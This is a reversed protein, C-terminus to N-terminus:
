YYPRRPNNLPNPRFRYALMMRKRYAEYEDDDRSVDDPRDLGLGQNEPRSSAKNVPDVIGQGESGLGQGETWGLKQLMQFGINNERLKYEKYDSLDPERGEKLANYKELFKELEDPPLFDGIHHKGQARRTLEEAWLQTAEMEASRLKHEWTGGGETEEDSDYEYKFKGARQLREIEQRKKVMDQYLLNIKYHDEAKKWDEESLDCTGFAQIAYQILQPDTRTVKSLLIQAGTNSLVRSEPQDKMNSADGTFSASGSSDEPDWRSRRKKRRQVRNEGTENSREDRQCDDISRKGMNENHHSKMEEEEPNYRERIFGANKDKEGEHKDSRIKDVLCRYQIYAVSDMQYLFWMAPDDRNKQRAMEEIEDGGEAVMRALQAAAPSVEPSVGMHHQVPQRSAMTAAGALHQPPPPPPIPPMPPAVVGSGVAQAVVGSHFNQSPQSSGNMGCQPLGHITQGMVPVGVIQPGSIQTPGMLQQSVVPPHTLTGPMINPPMAQQLHPPRNQQMQQQMPASGAPPYPFAARQPPPPPPPVLHVASAGVQNPPPGIVGPRPGMHPPPISMNSPINPPPPPHSPPPLAMASPPPLPNANVMPPPHHSHMNMPPPGRIMAPPPLGQCGGMLFQEQVTVPQTQIPGLAQPLSRPPLVQAHVVPLTQVQPVPAISMSGVSHVSTPMQPPMVSDSIDDHTLQSPSYPSPPRKQEVINVVSTDQQVHFSQSTPVGNWSQKDAELKVEVETADWANSNVQQEQSNVEEEKVQTLPVQGSSLRADSGSSALLTANNVNGFHVYSDEFIIIGYEGYIGQQNNGMSEGSNQSPSTSKSNGVNASSNDEEKKIKADKVGSLKKFQDMFSGDNVFLNVKGPLNVSANASIQPVEKQDFKSKWFTKKGSKDKLGGSSQLGTSNGLNGKTNGPSSQLKKLAEEAEKQKQELLKAQIERKKQEILQEQKSMQAFRENRSTKTSFPDAGKVGRYAM